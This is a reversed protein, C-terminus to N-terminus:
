MGRQVYPSPGSESISKEHGNTNRKSGWRPVNFVMAPPQSSAIVSPHKSTRSQLSTHRRLGGLTAFSTSRSRVQQIKRRFQSGLTGESQRRPGNSNSNMLTGNVVKNSKNHAKNHVINLSSLIDEDDDGSLVSERSALYDRLAPTAPKGRATMLNNTRLLTRPHSQRRTVKSGYSTDTFFTEAEEQMVPSSTSM